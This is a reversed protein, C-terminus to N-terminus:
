PTQRPHLTTKLIWNFSLHKPTVLLTRQYTGELMTVWSTSYMQAGESDDGYPKILPIQGLPQTRFSIGKQSGPSESPSPVLCVKVINLSKLSWWLFLCFWSCVLLVWCCPISTDSWHPGIRCWPFSLLRVTVRTGQELHSLFPQWGKNKCCLSCIFELVKEWHGVWFISTCLYLYWLKILVFALIILKLASYFVFM